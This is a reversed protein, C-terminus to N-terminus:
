EKLCILQMSRHPAAAAAAAAPSGGECSHLQPAGHPEHPPAEFSPINIEVAKKVLKGFIACPALLYLFDLAFILHFTREASNCGLRGSTATYNKNPTTRKASTGYPKIRAIRLILSTKSNM